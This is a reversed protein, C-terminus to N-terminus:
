KSQPFGLAMNHPFGLLGIFLGMHCPVPDEQWYGHSHFKKSASGWGWDLWRIVVASDLMKVVVKHSVRLWSWGSM